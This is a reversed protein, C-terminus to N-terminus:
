PEGHTVIDISTAALSPSSRSASNSPNRRASPHLDLGPSVSASGMSAGCSASGVWGGGGLASLVSPLLYVYYEGCKIRGLVTVLV